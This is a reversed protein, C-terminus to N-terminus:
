VFLLGARSLSSQTGIREDNVKIRNLRTRISGFNTIQHVIMLQFDMFVSQQFLMLKCLFLHNVTKP